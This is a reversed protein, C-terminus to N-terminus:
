HLYGMFSTLSDRYFELYWLMMASFSTMLIFFGLLLQPPVIIFFVQMTPMLRSMIGGGLFLLTGSVLAPTSIQVAITFTSSVMRATVEMFDKIPPFHGPAFVSYSETVGRLMLHHMDTCFLLVITMLGLFNGILSGQTNQTVDFIVASSIGSQLSIIMGAVHTANIILSCVTGIFLGTVIESAILLFFALASAPPHPMSASLLPTLLVCMVLALSMRMSPPVYTEGFGPLVM